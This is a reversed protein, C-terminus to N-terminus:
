SLSSRRYIYSENDLKVENSKLENSKMAVLNM